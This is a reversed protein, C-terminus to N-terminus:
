AAPVSPGAVTRVAMSCSVHLLPIWREGVGAPEERTGKLCVCSSSVSPAFLQQSSSSSHPGWPRSLSLMPPYLLKEIELRVQNLDLLAEHLIGM